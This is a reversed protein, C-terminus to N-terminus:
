NFHFWSNEKGKEKFCKSLELSRVTTSM